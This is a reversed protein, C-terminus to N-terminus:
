NLGWSTDTEVGFKKDIDRLVFNGLLAKRSTRRLPSEKFFVFKLGSFRLFFDDPVADLAPGGLTIAVLKPLELLDTDVIRVIPNGAISLNTVSPVETWEVDSLREIQNNDLSFTDLSRLLGGGWGAKLERLPNQTIGLNKLGLLTKLWGVPVENLSCDRFSLTQILSHAFPEAPLELRGINEFMLTDTKPLLDFFYEPFELSESDRFGLINANSFQALIAADSIKVQRLGIFAVMFIEKTLAPAVAKLLELDELAFKVSMLKNLGSFDSVKLPQTIKETIDLSSLNRFEEPQIEACDTTRHIKMLAARVPASRECVPTVLEVSGSNGAKASAVFLGQLLLLGFLFFHM